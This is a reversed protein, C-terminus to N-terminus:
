FEAPVADVPAMPKDSNQGVGADTLLITTGPKVQSKVHELFARDLHVQSLTTADFTKAVDDDHGPVGVYVFRRKGDPWDTMTIVHSGDDDDDEDIRAAGRGIEVGNRLVVAAQDQKSIVITLPGLPSLDPKWAFTAEELPLPGGNTAAIETPPLLTGDSTPSRKAADGAVVVPVGRHTASFLAKAFEYPLHICGHSEPYGPVGGAHLAVGDWTLRETFPMSAEDYKNSHHVAARELITFAGTPTAHGKKGSSITSVGIRVGNRYVTAIQRSLDVYIMMPGAPAVGPAWMWEGPKLADDSTAFDFSASVAAGHGAAPLALFATAGFFLALMACRRTDRM